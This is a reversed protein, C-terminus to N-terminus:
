VADSRFDVVEHDRVPLRYDWILHYTFGGKLTLKGIRYARNPVHRKVRFGIRSEELYVMKDNCYALRRRLEAVYTKPIVLEIYGGCITQRLIYSDDCVVIEDAFLVLKAKNFYQRMKIYCTIM